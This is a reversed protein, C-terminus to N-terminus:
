ERKQTREELYAKLADRWPRLSRVGAQRALDTSLVSYRPRRATAGFEETSVSTLNADVNSMEFIASALEYWSCSGADTLHFLGRAGTHLLETTAQAIDVTYSPTCTQDNDFRLPKGQQALRLMTEIFNGGKGGSGWVGYLGCTRLILHEPCTARIFYEGCLKSAGYVSVPGPADGETWPTTRSPDLGFVYDTSFHVLLCGLDRCVEALSRAGLANVAFAADPESEARDVFNYAACNVVVKPGIRELTQRLLEPNTLDADARTLSVVEGALRPVLDRGLQGQSGIVAYRL